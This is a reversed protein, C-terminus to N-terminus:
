FASALDLVQEADTPSGTIEGTAEDLTADEVANEPIDEASDLSGADITTGEADLAADTAGGDLGQNPPTPFSITQVPQDFVVRHHLSIASSKSCCSGYPCCPQQFTSATVSTTVRVTQGDLSTLEVLCLPPVDVSGNYTVQVAAYGNAVGAEGVSGVLLRSCPGSVVQASAVAAMGGDVHDVQITMTPNTSDVPCLGPCYSSSGSCGLAAIAEALLAFRWRFRM